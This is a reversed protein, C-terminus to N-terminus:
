LVNSYMLYYMTTGDLIMKHRMAGDLGGFRRRGMFDWGCVGSLINTLKIIISDYRNRITRTRLVPPAHQLLIGMSFCSYVESLVNYYM